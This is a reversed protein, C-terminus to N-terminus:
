KSGQQASVDNSNFALCGDQVAFSDCVSVVSCILNEPDITVTEVISDASFDNGDEEAAPGSPKLRACMRSRRTIAVPNAAPRSICYSIDSTFCCKSRIDSASGFKNKIQQQITKNFKRTLRNRCVVIGYSHPEDIKSTICLRITFNLFSSCFAKINRDVVAQQGPRLGPIKRMCRFTLKDMPDSIMLQSNNAFASSEIKLNSLNGLINFNSHFITDKVVVEAVNDFIQMWLNKQYEDCQFEILPIFLNVIILANSRFENKTSRIKVNESFALETLNSNSGLFLINTDAFNVNGKYDLKVLGSWLVKSIVNPYALFVNGDYVDLSQIPSINQAERKQFANLNNGIKKFTIEKTEEDSNIIEKVKDIFDSMYAVAYRM